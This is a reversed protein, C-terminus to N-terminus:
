RDSTLPSLDMSRYPDHTKSLDFSQIAHKNSQRVHLVNPRKEPNAHIMAFLNNLYAPYSTQQEAYLYLFRLGIEYYDWTNWFPLLHDICEQRTWHVMPLFYEETEKRFEERKAPFLSFVSHEKLYLDLSQYLISETLPGTQVLYTLLHIEFAYWNWEPMFRSFVDKQYQFSHLHDAIMSLGFDIIYLKSNRTSYLMNAFHLDHHVIKQEILIAISECVQYFCRIMRIFRTNKQLYKYLEVSPIYQSYLLVYSKNKRILDCGEKMPTLSKYPIPCSREVLVFHDRSHPIKKLRKGIDIEANTKQNIETLKSVWKKKMETGQCTYGPYYVCGYVGSALFHNPM